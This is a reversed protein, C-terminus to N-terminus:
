GPVSFLIYPGWTKVCSKKSGFGDASPQKARNRLLLLTFCMTPMKSIHRWFVGAKRCFFASKQDLPERKRTKVWGM